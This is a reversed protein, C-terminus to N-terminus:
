YVLFVDQLFRLKTRIMSASRQPAKANHLRRVQRHIGQPLPQNRFKKQVRAAKQETEEVVAAEEDHDEEKNEGKKKGGGSDGGNGAAAPAASSSNSSHVSPAYFPRLEKARLTGHRDFLGM